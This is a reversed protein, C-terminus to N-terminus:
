LMLGKKVLSNLILADTPFALVIKQKKIKTTTFFGLLEIDDGPKLTGSYEEVLFWVGVTHQAPNHVNSYVDFVTEKKIDLNTEEKTERVLAERVDEYYEVYGCPICWMDRYSANRKGLLIGGNKIIIAAVGVIPNQYFITCCKACQLRNLFKNVILSLKEGCYPCFNYRMNELVKFEKM